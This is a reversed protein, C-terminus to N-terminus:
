NPNERFSEGSLICCPPFKWNIVWWAWICNIWFYGFYCGNRMLHVVEKLNAWCTNFIWGHLFWGMIGYICWWRKFTVSAHLLFRGYIWCAHDPRWKTLYELLLYAVRSGRTWYIRAMRTSRAMMYGSRCIQFQQPPFIRNLFFKRSTEEDKRAQLLNEMLKWWRRNKLFKACILTELGPHLSNKWTDMDEFIELNPPWKLGSFPNKLNKGPPFNRTWNM